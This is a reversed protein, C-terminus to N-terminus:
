ENNQKFWRQKIWKKYPTLITDLKPKEIPHQYNIQFDEMLM